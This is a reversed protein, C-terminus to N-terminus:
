PLLFPNLLYFDEHSGRFWMIWIVTTFYCFLNFVTSISDLFVPPRWKGTIFFPCTQNKYKKPCPYCCDSQPRAPNTVETLLMGPPRWSPQQSNTPQVPTLHWPNWVLEQQESIDTGETQEFCCRPSAVGGLDTPNQAFPCSPSPLAAHGASGKWGQQGRVAWRSSSRGLSESSLVSQSDTCHLPILM